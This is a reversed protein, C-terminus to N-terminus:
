SEKVVCGNEMVVQYLRGLGNCTNFIELNWTPTKADVTKWVCDTRRQKYVFEITARCIDNYHAGHLIDHLICEGSLKILPTYKELEFVTQDYAHSTDIFLLDIPQNFQKIYERDNQVVITIRNDLQFKKILNKTEEATGHSGNIDVSIVSGGTERCAFLLTTTSTGHGRGLELITQANLRIATDYLIQCEQPSFLVFFKDFPIEKLIETEVEKWTKM